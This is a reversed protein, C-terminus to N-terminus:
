LLGGGTGILINIIVHWIDYYILVLSPEFYSNAKTLQSSTCKM